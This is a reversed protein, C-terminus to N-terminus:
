MARKMEAMPTKRYLAGTCVDELSLFFYLGLITEHMKSGCYSTSASYIGYMSYAMENELFFPSLSLTQLIVGGLNTQRIRMVMVVVMVWGDVVM